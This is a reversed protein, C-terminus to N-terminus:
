LPHAPAEGAHAEGSVVVRDVDGTSKHASADASDRVSTDAALGVVLTALPVDLSEEPSTAAGGVSATREPTCETTVASVGLPVVEIASLDAPLPATNPDVPSTASSFPGAVSVFEWSRRRM